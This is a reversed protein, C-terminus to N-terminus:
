RAVWGLLVAAVLVATTIAGRAGLKKGGMSLPTAVVALLRGVLGDVVAVWAALIEGLLTLPQPDEVAWAPADADGPVSRWLGLVGAVLVLVAIVPTGEGARDMAGRWLGGMGGGVVATSGTAVLGAVLWLLAGGGVTALYGGHHKSAKGVRRATSSAKGTVVLRVMRGTALAVGLQAALLMGWALWRPPAGTAPLGALGAARGFFGGFPVVGAVALTAGILAYFGLRPLKSRLGLRERWPGSRKEDLSLPGMVAVWLSAHALAAAVALEVSALGVAAIIAGGHALALWSLVGEGDRPHWAAYAGVLAVIGGLVAAGMPLAVGLNAARALLHGALVLPIAQAAGALAPRARRTSSDTAGRPRVMTASAAMGLAALVLLWGIEDPRRTADTLSAPLGLKPAITRQHVMDVFGLGAGLAVVRASAGADLQLELEAAEDGRGGVVGGAGPVIAMRQRGAAIRKAVFPSTTVCAATLQPGDPATWSPQEECRPLTGQNAKLDALEAIGLYVEAGPHTTMTLRALAGMAPAMQPAPQRSPPTQRPKTQLAPPRPLRDPMGTGPARQALRVDNPLSAQASPEIVVQFPERYDPEFGDDLWRGGGSWFILAVAVLFSAEGLRGAIVGARPADAMSVPALDDGLARAALGVGFWGLAMALWNGAVAAYVAAGTLLGLRALALVAGREPAKELAEAGMSLSGAWLLLLVLATGAALPDLLVDLSVDLSGIRLAFLGPWWSWTHAAVGVVGWVGLVLGMLGGGHAILRARSRLGEVQAVVMLALAVVFPWAVFLWWPGQRLAVADLQAQIESM